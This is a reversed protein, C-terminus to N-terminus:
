HHPKDPMEVLKVYWESSEVVKFERSTELLVGASHIIDGVSDEISHITARDMLGVSRAIATGQSYHLDVVLMPWEEAPCDAVEASYRAFADEIMTLIGKYDPENCYHYRFLQDNACILLAYELACDYLPHHLYQPNANDRFYQKMDQAHSSREILTPLDQWQRYHWFDAPDCNALKLTEELRIMDFDKGNGWIYPKKGDVKVTLDPLESPHITASACHRMAKHKIEFSEQEAHFDVTDASVDAGYMPELIYTEAGGIAVPIMEYDYLSLVPMYTVTYVAANVATSLTEIDCIYNPAKIM